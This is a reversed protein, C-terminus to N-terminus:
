HSHTVCLFGREFKLFPRREVGHEPLRGTINFGLRKIWRIHVENREDVCNMLHDFDRSILELFSPGFLAIRRRNKPFEPTGLLWPAGLRPIDPHPVVGFIAAPVGNPSFTLPELSNDVADGLAVKPTRGTAAYVEAVDEVRMHEAVYRVDSARTLRVDHEIM